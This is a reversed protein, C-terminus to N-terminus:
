GMLCGLGNFLRVWSSTIFGLSRLLVARFTFTSLLFMVYSFQLEALLEAEGPSLADVWKQGSKKSPSQYPPVSNCEAALGTLVSELTYSRDM